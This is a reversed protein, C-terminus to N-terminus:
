KLYNPYEFRGKLIAKIAIVDFANIKAGGNGDVDYHKVNSYDGSKLARSLSISDLANIKGNGDVDGVYYTNAVIEVKGEPMVFRIEKAAEDEIVVDGSKVVWGDFVQCLKGDLKAAPAKLTVEEGVIYTHEVGNVTVTSMAPYEDEYGFVVDCNFLASNGETFDISNWQKESGGYYVTEISDALYFAELYVATLSAPLYVETLGFCNYFAHDGIVEVGEPIHIAKLGSRDYLENTYREDNDYNWYWSDPCGNEFAHGSIALTGPKVYLETEETIDGKYNYLSSGLYVLGEPQDNYWKTGGFSHGGLTVLTDPMNIEALDECGFFAFYAIYTVSSPIDVSTLKSNMFAEYRISQVNEGIIVETIGSNKFTYMDICEIRNGIYAEKLATCGTFAGRDIYNINDSLNISELSTCNNFAYACIETVREPLEVNVLGTCGSFEGYAIYTQNVSLPLETLSTCGAFIYRELYSLEDPMQVTKLNKCNRFANTLIAEVQEPIIVDVFGDCDYFEGTPIHDQNAGIPLYTLADCNEFIYEGFMILSDPINISKLETCNAFGYSGIGNLGESFEVTELNVNGEFAYSGIYLDQNETSAETILSELKTNQFSGSGLYAVNGPVTLSKLGANIFAKSDIMELKLPLEIAELSVCDAFACEGITTLETPLVVSKLNPCNDFTAYAIETVLPSMVVGTLNECGQFMMMPIYEVTEPMVYEGSVTKDCSIIQTKAKDYTIGNDVIFETSDPHIIFNVGYYYQMFKLDSITVPLEYTYGKAYPYAVITTVDKDFIVGDMVVYDPHAENLVFEKIRYMGNFVAPSLVTETGEIYVTEVNTFEYFAGASIFKVSEPITLTKVTNARANFNNIGVVPYGNIESPIVVDTVDNNYLYWYDKMGTIYVGGDQVIYNYPTYEVISVEFECSRGMYKFTATYTNGVTWQNEYWQDTSSGWNGLDDRSVIESTGDKYNIKVSVVAEGASYCFWQRVYGYEDWHESYWGNQYEELPRTEIVEISAIPNEIISVEFEDAFMGCEYVVTYTNGATWINDPGQNFYLQSYGQILPAVSDYHYVGSTGDKFYVRIQDLANWVNYFTYNVYQGLEEDYYSEKDGNGEYIPKTELIEIREINTPEIYFSLEESYGDVTVTVTYSNGGVWQNFFSQNTEIEVVSDAPFHQESTGDSYHVTFWGIPYILDYEFYDKWEGDVKQSAWSGLSGEKITDVANHFEIDFVSRSEIKVEFDCSHSGYWLTATYTNGVTWQNDASQGHTVSANNEERWENYGLTESTGDKYNIKVKVIADWPYYQFFEIHEGLAESYGSNWWGNVNEYIPQTEVVEISEVRDEEITVEFQTSKGMCMLTATYTNGGTWQNKYSQNTAVIYDCDWLGLTETTGDKYTVLISNFAYNMNYYPYEVWEGELYVSETSCDAGETFTKVDYPVVSEVDNPEIYVPVDVSHEGVWLKVTYTNGGTWPNDYDQVWEYGSDGRSMWQEFNLLEYSGDVYNLKVTKVILDIPYHYYVYAEGFENRQTSYYGYKGEVMVGSEYLEISVLPDSIVSVTFDCTRNAYYLTVNYSNGEQWSNVYSQDSVFASDAYGYRQYPVIEETGDTYTLKVSKIANEVNYHDYYLWSGSESDYGMRQECDKGAVLFATEYVEVGAINNPEVYAQFDCSHTGVNLTADYYNGAVWPNDSQKYSPEYDVSYSELEWLYCIMESGDKYAIRVKEIADAASYWYYPRSVDGSTISGYNGDYGELLSKTEYVEVYDVPDEIIAVEYDCSVGYYHLTATYTNGATWENTKSQDSEFAFYYDHYDNWLRVTESTGDKYNVKIMGDVIADFVEYVEYYIWEGDVYESLTKKHQGEVFPITDLIEISEISTPTIYVEYVGSVGGYNLTIPYTNGATWQNEYDQVMDISCDDYIDSFAVIESTGDSYSLEVTNIFYNPEYHYYMTPTNRDTYGGCNGEIVTNYEYVEIGVLTADSQASTGDEAIAFDLESALTGVVAQPVIMLVCLLIAIFRKM